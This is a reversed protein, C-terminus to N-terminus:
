LPGTNAPASAAVTFVTVTTPCVGADMAPLNWVEVHVGLVTVVRAHQAVDQPAVPVRYPRAKLGAEWRRAAQEASPVTRMQSGLLLQGVQRQVKEVALSCPVGVETAKVLVSGAWTTAEKREPSM